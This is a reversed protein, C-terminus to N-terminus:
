TRKSLFKVNGYHITVRQRARVGSLFFGTCAHVHIYLIAHAGSSPVQHFSGAMSANDSQQCGKGAEGKDKDKFRNKSSVLLVCTM